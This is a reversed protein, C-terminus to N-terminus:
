ERFAHYKDVTDNMSMAAPLSRVIHKYIIVRVKSPLGLFSASDSVNQVQRYAM